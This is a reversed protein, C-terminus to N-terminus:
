RSPPLTREFFRLWNGGLISAVDADSFGAACLAEGVRPLDGADAIEQPIQERGFGGDMDTGIGVYDASGALDCIHKVHTIVDDLTARRKKYQEAPVLFKEFFNIGIV